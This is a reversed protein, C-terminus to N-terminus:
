LSYNYLMPWYKLLRSGFIHQIWIHKIDRKLLELFVLYINARFNAYFSFFVNKWINKLIHFHVFYVLRSSKVLHDAAQPNARSSSDNKKDCWKWSGSGSKFRNWLTSLSATSSFGGRPRPLLRRANSAGRNAFFRWYTLDGICHKLKNVVVPVM